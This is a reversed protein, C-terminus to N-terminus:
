LNALVLIDVVLPILRAVTGHQVRQDGLAAPGTKLPQLPVLEGTVQHVLLFGGSFLFGFALSILCLLTHFYETQEKEEQKERREGKCQSSDLTTSVALGLGIGAWAIGLVPIAQASHRKERINPSVVLSIQM